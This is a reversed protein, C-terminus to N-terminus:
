HDFLKPSLSAFPSHLAHLLANRFGHSLLRNATVAATAKNKMLRSNHQIEKNQVPVCLLTVSM